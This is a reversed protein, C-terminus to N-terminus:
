CRFFSSPARNLPTIRLTHLFASGGRFASFVVPPAWALAVAIATLTLRRETAGHLLDLFRWPKDLSSVAVPGSSNQLLQTM